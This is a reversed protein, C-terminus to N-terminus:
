KAYKSAASVIIVAQIIIVQDQLKHDCHTQTTSQFMCVCFFFTVANNVRQPSPVAAANHDKWIMDAIIEFMREEAFYFKLSHTDQKSNLLKVLSETNSLYNDWFLFKCNSWFIFEFIHLQEWSKSKKKRNIDHPEDTSGTM